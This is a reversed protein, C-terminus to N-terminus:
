VLANTSGTLIVGGHSTTSGIHATPRGELTTLPSGTVIVAGCACADGVAAMPRGDATSPSATAVIVNKGHMPCAHEDGLRAAPSM